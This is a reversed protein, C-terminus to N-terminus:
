RGHQQDCGTPVFHRHESIHQFDLLGNAKAFAGFVEKESDNLFKQIM